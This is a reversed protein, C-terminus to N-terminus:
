KIFSRMNPWYFNQRIRQLTQLFGSHGGVLSSHLEKLILNRFSSDAGIYLKGKYFVRGNHVSFKSQDLQGNTYSQLKGIIDPDTHAMNDIAEIWSPELQSISHIGVDPDRRSLADAVVNLSGKRYEVIYDYGLLKSLWRQQSPTGVRQELLYKLSHHNTRVIFSSGLL